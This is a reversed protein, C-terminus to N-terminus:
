FQQMKVGLGLRDWTEPLWQDGTGENWVVGSLLACAIKHYTGVVSDLLFLVVENVGNLVFLHNSLGSNALDLVTCKQVEWYLGEITSISLIDVCEVSLTMGECYAGTLWLGAM